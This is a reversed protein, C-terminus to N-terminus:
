KISKANIQATEAAKTYEAASREFYKRIRERQEESYDDIMTFAKEYIARHPRLPLHIVDNELIDIMRDYDKDQRAAVLRTLVVLPDYIPLDLMNVVMVGREMVDRDPSGIRGNLVRTFYAGYVSKLLQNVKEEGVFMNAVAKNELIYALVPSDPETISAAVIPWMRENFREYDTLTPFVKDMLEVLEKDRKSNKLMELYNIANETTADAEYVAKLSAISNKPDKARDAMPVFQDARAGGVLRNIENGEADLILYSPYASIGYRKRVAEGEPTGMDIRINVFNENFFRGVEAAPFVVSAMFRCPGFWPAYCDIFVKSPGDGSQARALADDLSGKMFVTGQNQGLVDACVLLCILVLGIHKM